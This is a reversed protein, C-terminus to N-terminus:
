EFNLIIFHFAPTLIFLDIGRAELLACGGKVALGELGLESGVLEESAKVGLVAGEIGGHQLKLLEEVLLLAAGVHEGILREQYALERLEDALLLGDQLSLGLVGVLAEVEVHM